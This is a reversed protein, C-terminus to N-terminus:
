EGTFFPHTLVQDINIRDAESKKCMSEILDKLQDSNHKEYQIPNNKAAIDTQLNSDSWFPIKHNVYTIISIGLSWIDCAKGDYGQELNFQQEPCRFGSTGACDKLKQHQHTLKKATSFDALKFHDGNEEDSKCLINDIKIDRNVVNRKHLYQIGKAIQQFIVNAQLERRKFQDQEQIGYQKCLFQDLKDNPDYYQNDENWIMLQGMDCYELILYLKEDTEDDIIQFLKCINPHNLHKYINIEEQILHLRNTMFSEGDSKYGFVREYELQSKKFIKAAYFSKLVTVGDEDLYKREVKKVKGFSGQGLKELFEYENMHRGNNEGHHYVTTHQFDAEYDEDSESNNKFSKKYEEECLDSYKELSIDHEQYYFQGNEDANQGQHELDDQYNDKESIKNSQNDPSNM